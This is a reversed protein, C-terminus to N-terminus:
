KHLANFDRDILGMYVVDHYKGDFFASERSLGERVFGLKQHFAISPANDAYIYINAKHYRLQNFYYDLLIKSAERAYGKGKYDPHVFLGYKFSGNKRDCDFATVQGVPVGDFTEVTFLFDDNGSKKNANELFDAMQRANKPFEIVDYMKATDTDINGNKDKFLVSDSEEPARLRIKNGSWIGM